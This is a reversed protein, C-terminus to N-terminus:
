TEPNERANLAAWEGLARLVLVAVVAVGVAAGVAGVLAGIAAAVDSDSQLRVFAWGIM